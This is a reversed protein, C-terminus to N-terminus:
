RSPAAAITTRFSFVAPDLQNMGMHDLGAQYAQLAAHSSM